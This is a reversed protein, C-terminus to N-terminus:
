KQAGSPDEAMAAELELNSEWKKSAAAAVM